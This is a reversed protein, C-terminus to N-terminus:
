PVFIGDLEVTVGDHRFVVTLEVTLDSRGEERTWLPMRVSWTEDEAVSVRVANLLGAPEGLERYAEPPPEVPQLGYEEVATQIEAASLRVGGTM